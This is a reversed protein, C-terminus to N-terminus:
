APAWLAAPAEESAQPEDARQPCLSGLQARCEGWQAGQAVQLM